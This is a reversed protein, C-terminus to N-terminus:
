DKWLEKNIITGPNKHEIINVAVEATQDILDVLADDSYYGVHPTSLVNPLQTIKKETGTPPETMYADIAAGAIEGTTLAEYLDEINCLAGRATNVFIATKKMKKFAEKNFVGETSPLLPVHLTIYDSEALLTDFDVPEVGTARIADAPVVADYAIIRCGFGSLMKAVYKAIRGYGYLGVTSKSFRKVPAICKYGGSWNGEDIWRILNKMRRQEALILAAVHVAVEELCYNPVNCVLVGKKTAVELNASNYGIGYAVVAKLEPVLGDYIAETMFQFQTIIVDAGKAAKIITEDDQPADYLFEFEIDPMRKKLADELAKLSEETMVGLTGTMVVKKGM